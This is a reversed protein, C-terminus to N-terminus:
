QAKVFLLLLAASVVLGIITGILSAKKFQLPRHRRDALLWQYFCAIAILFVIVSLILFMLAM